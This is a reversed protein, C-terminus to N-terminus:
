TFKGTIVKLKMKLGEKCLKYDDTMLFYFKGPHFTLGNPFPSVQVIETSFMKVKNPRNCKFIVRNKIKYKETQQDRETSCSKFTTYDVLNLNFSHIPESTSRKYTSSPCILDLYDGLKVQLSAGKYPQFISSFLYSLFTINKTSLFSPIKFFNPIKQKYIKKAFKLLQVSLSFIDFM